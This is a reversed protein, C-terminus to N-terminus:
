HPFKGPGPGVKQHRRDDVHGAQLPAVIEAEIDTRVEIVIGTARRCKARCHAILETQADLSALRGHFEQHDILDFPVWRLLSMIGASVLWRQCDVATVPTAASSAM